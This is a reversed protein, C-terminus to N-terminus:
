SAAQKPFSVPRLGGTAETLQQAARSVEARILAKHTANMRSVPAAVALTGAPNQNADFIPAAHSHVDAEFGGVSESVGTMRARNLEARIYAPDTITESTFAPLPATLHQNVWDDDSFALIALGSATGHFSIIEGDDMMVRTAHKPSLAHAIVMLTEGRLVTLHSTEGTAEALGRLIPRAASLMPVARERLAALRLVEPGIRYARQNGVQEVIGQAQMETMLRYTTAKNLGALRALDSLGIEAREHNFYNLITLAKTVTGM